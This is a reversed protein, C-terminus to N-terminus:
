SHEGSRKSERQAAAAANTAGLELYCIVQSPDDPDPRESFGMDRALKRMRNNALSDMSYLRSVGRGRAYDILHALLRKGLGFHQWDDAVAVSIEAGQPENAGAYRSVGIQRTPQGGDDLALAVYAMDASYDPDCLRLLAEDSLRAIGGLFLFHKSPPSLRDLFAANRQLDDRRIPRISVRRGDKLTETWENTPNAMATETEEHAPAETADTELSLLARVSNEIDESIRVVARGDSDHECFRLPEGFTVSVRKLHPLLRQKPWADFTGRIAVPVADADSHLVVRGMGRLFPGLEGTPSRRGEPFWVISYGRRLLDRATEIAAALDRDPDIPLVQCARSVFRTFPGTYLIGVWGAWFTKRLRRWPMAAALAPPDLYSTHNPAILMPIDSELPERGSVKLGFFIRMVPRCLGFILAGLARMPASPLEVIPVHAAAASAASSDAPAAAEIERVLDRLTLIRSAADGTVAVHFREEIELTIAVWELSDIELELQPSTDLTLTRNPFRRQIWEWIQAARGSALLASDAASLTQTEAPAAAERAQTYLDPLLHRKLKGLQTRPLAARTVRYGSVRQYPPLRAGVDEIEERLLATERLAGRERLTAENPVVLAALKGRDELVAVELLLQSAAYAKELEEPFVKKGDALVILEKSRGAVHLYGARDVWGLDGTRFWGDETFAARTASDNGRYGTFVSPGRAVIEGPAAGRGNSRGNEPEPSRIAIEVGALPRGESGLRSHSRDNFTLVPSTETLGYGTLVTWGLAELRRALKPDLHSGGCGIIELRGGFAGHVSHFLWRGANLGTSRRIVDSAALLARFLRSAWPGRREVSSRIGDWLAECLRPVALLATAGADRAAGGIEPGSIGSPFVVTAGQALVTMLGVTFPYTHHLPLPLLVRDDPDILHAAALAAANAILNRHTLPVAKPTGTTGSTYLLAATLEAHLAPSKVTASARTEITAPAADCVAEIAITRNRHGAAALETRHAATTIIVDPAAHDIIGGLALASSQHDLPVVLAGARVVAFYAAVWDAGNPGWLAVTSRTGVGAAGLRSTAARIRELLQSYDLTRKGAPGYEILATRTGHAAFREVFDDLTAPTRQTDVTQPSAM